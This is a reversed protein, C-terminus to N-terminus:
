PEDQLPFRAAPRSGPGCHRRRFRSGEGREARDMADFLRRANARSAMLHVTEQLSRLEAADIIAVDPHGRRHVIVTEADGSVRDLLSAFNARAESYSKEITM